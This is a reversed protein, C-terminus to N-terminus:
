LNVRVQTLKTCFNIDAGYSLLLSVIELEEDEYHARDGTLEAAMHM